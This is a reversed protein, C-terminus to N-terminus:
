KRSTIIYTNRDCLIKHVIMSSEMRGGAVAKQLAMGFFAVAVMASMLIVEIEEKNALAPGYTALVLLPVAM